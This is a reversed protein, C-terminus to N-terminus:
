QQSILIMLPVLNTNIFTMSGVYNESNKKKFGARANFLLQVRIQVASFFTLYKITGEQLIFFKNSKKM